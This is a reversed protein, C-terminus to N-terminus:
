FCNEAIDLGARDGNMILSAKSPAQSVV